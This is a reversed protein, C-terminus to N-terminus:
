EGNRIGLEKEKRLSDLAHKAAEQEAVKKSSGSGHGLIKGSLILEVQFIKRHDPGSQGVLRYEPQETFMRHALEQLNTKPDYLGGRKVVDDIEADFLRLIVARTAELGGDLYVAAILAEFADALLSPKNRGGTLEEGKGLKVHAGLSLKGAIVALSKDQVVAAKLKSLKGENWEPFRKFLEESIIMGLVSDGLFELRENFYRAESPHEHSFTRHTLAELPLAERQFFYGISEELKTLSKESSSVPM